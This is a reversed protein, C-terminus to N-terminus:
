ITLFVGLGLGAVYLFIDKTVISSASNRSLETHDPLIIKMNGTKNEPTPFTAPPPALLLSSSNAGGSLPTLLERNIAPNDEPTISSSAPTEEPTISSSAPPNQTPLASGDQSVNPGSTLGTQNPSLPPSTLTTNPDGSGKAHPMLLVKRSLRSEPNQPKPVMMVGFPKSYIDEDEQVATQPSDALRQNPETAQQRQFNPRQPDNPLIVVDNLPLEASSGQQVRTENLTSPSIASQPPVFHLGQASSITENTGLTTTNDPKLPILEKATGLSTTNDPNLTIPGNGAGSSVTNDANITIPGNSTGLSTINDSNVPNLTITGNTPGLTTGNDPNLATLGNDPGLSTTNDSSLTINGNTIGFSTSNDLALHQATLSLDPHPSFTDNHSGSIANSDSSQQKDTQFVPLPQQDIIVISSNSQAPTASTTPSSLASPSLQIQSQGSDNSPFTSFNGLNGTTNDPNITLDPAARVISSDLPATDYRDDAQLHSTPLRTNGTLRTNSPNAAQGARSLDEVRNDNPQVLSASNSQRASANAVAVGDSENRAVALSINAQMTEQIAKMVEEAIDSANSSNPVTGNIQVQLQDTHGKKRMCVSINHDANTHSVNSQNSRTDEGNGDVVSKTTVNKSHVKDGKESRRRDIFSNKVVSDARRLNLSDPGSNLPFINSSTPIQGPALTDQVTHGGQLAVGQPHGLANDWRLALLAM